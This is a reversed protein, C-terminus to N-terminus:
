GKKRKQYKAVIGFDHTRFKSIISLRFIEGLRKNRKLSGSFICKYLAIFYKEQLINWFSFFRFLDTIPYRSYKEYIKCNKKYNCLFYCKATMTKFIKLESSMRDMFHMGKILNITVNFYNSTLFIVLYDTCKLLLILTM